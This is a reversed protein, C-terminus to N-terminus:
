GARAWQVLKGDDQIKPRVYSHDPEDQGPVAHNKMAEQFGREVFGSVTKAHAQILKAVYPDDSTETVRVGRETEVREMEIKDTHQFLEAFLPDRLRIPHSEEVRYQMWQVHEKIKAAVKPDNSETVTQVGNALETVKRTIKEHNALLFHFDQQDLQRRPDHPPGGVGRRAGPGQGQARGRGRQAEVPGVVILTLMLILSLKIFNQM